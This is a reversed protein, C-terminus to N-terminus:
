KNWYERQGYEYMYQSDYGPEGPLKNQPDAIALQFYEPWKSQLKYFETCVAGPIRAQHQSLKHVRMRVTSYDDLVMGDHLKIKGECIDAALEAVIMCMNTESKGTVIIEPLGHDTMGCTCVIVPGINDDVAENHQAFGMVAGEPAIHKARVLAAVNDKIAEPTM